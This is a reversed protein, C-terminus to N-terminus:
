AILPPAIRRVLPRVPEILIETSNRNLVLYDM